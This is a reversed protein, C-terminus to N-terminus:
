IADPEHDVLKWSGDEGQIMGKNKECWWMMPVLYEDKLADTSKNVLSIDRGVELKFGGKTGQTGAVGHLYGEMNHWNGPDVSSKLFSSQRTDIVLEQGVDSYGVLPYNPVLDLSNRVRLLRLNELSSVVKQFNADGVRPCGFLFATVLCAKEPHDKPKNVGNAVIDVANLTGLAAGLSHGTVTISIEEDKFEEVLRKVEELVQQRASTTNYASRPDDSTYISLWGQHVNPDNKTGLIGSASVLIFNFDNIWELAQVSGRWAILIDRRGLVAKGEDTAVAVYGMWNSERSWAERSLSKIIFADPVDIRSTAYLFKTVNYKYPNAKELGLKSFFNAKSYRSSGAFMSAKESNFTDYTAQAREGYQIINRRLDVDLPDLLNKWNNQGNLLKWRTAISQLM